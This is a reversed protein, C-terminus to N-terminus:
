RHRHPLLRAMSQTAARGHHAPGRGRLVRKGQVDEPPNDPQDRGFPFFETGETAIVGDLSYDFVRAILKRM